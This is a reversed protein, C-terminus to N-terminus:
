FNNTQSFNNILQNKCQTEDINFNMNDDMSFEVSMFPENFLNVLAITVLSKLNFSRDEMDKGIFVELFDVFKNTIVVLRQEVCEVQKDALELTIKKILKVLQNLALELSYFIFRPSQRLLLTQLIDALLFYKANTSFFSESNELYVLFLEKPNGFLQCIYMTANRIFDISEPTDSKAAFQCLVTSLDWSADGVLQINEVSYLLTTCEELNGSELTEKFLESFEM